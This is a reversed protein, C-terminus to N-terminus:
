LSKRERSYRYVAEFFYPNDIESRPSILVPKGPNLYTEVFKEAAKDIEEKPMDAPIVPTEVGLLLKDGWQDYLAKKDNVPQGSWTDAGIEQMAPVLQPVYGCCHMDYFLGYSHIHDAVKKMPPVLIKRATELSFFPARQGGWDDHITFGDVPFYQVLKDIVACYLDSLKDLFATLAEEQEEDILAVCANSVDMMSIMREFFGSFLVPVLAQESQSVFDRSLKAQGEWDWTEIDPWQVKERWENMDTFLPNGPRVMAGNAIEVFVWEIGFMDRGGKDPVKEGGDMVACRAISDPICRPTFHLFDRFDPMYMCERDFIASKINDRATIPAYFHPIDAFGRFNPIVYKIKLENQDFPVKKM